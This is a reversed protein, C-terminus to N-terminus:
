RLRAAQPDRVAEAIAELVAPEGLVRTHGAGEVLLLRSGPHAAHLLASEEPDVFPDRAGHVLLLPIRPDVPDAIADYRPGITVPTEDIRALFRVTMAERVADDLRMIRAFERLYADPAGVGAISVIRGVRVGHRAATLAAFGGFSHGVVAHLGGHLRDLERLAGVWDRIDTRRGASAGHGPVEVAVVRLGQARLVPVLTAFQSARGRWGHALVVVPGASGWEHVALRRGRVVLEGRRAGAMVAADRPHVRMRPRTTAFAADAARGGLRPSLASAARIGARALRIATTM